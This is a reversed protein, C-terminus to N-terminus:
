VSICIDRVVGEHGDLEGELETSVSEGLDLPNAIGSVVGEGNCGLPFELSLM